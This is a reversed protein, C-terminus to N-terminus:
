LSKIYSRILEKAESDLDKLWGPCDSSSIVADINIKEAQTKLIKSTIIEGSGERECSVKALFEKDTANCSSDFRFSSGKKVKGFFILRYLPHLVWKKLGSLIREETYIKNGSVSTINEVTTDTFREIFDKTFIIDIEQEKFKQRIKELEVLVRKVQDERTRDDIIILNEAVGKVFVAGEVDKLLIQRIRNYDKTLVDESSDDEKRFGVQENGTFLNKDKYVSMIIISNSFDARVGGALSLSGNRLIQLILERLPQSAYHVGDFFIVSGFSGGAELEQKYIEQWAKSTLGRLERYFDLIRAGLRDVRSQCKKQFNESWEQLINLDKGRRAKFHPFDIQSFLPAQQFGLADPALPGILPSLMGPYVAHFASCDIYTFSSSRDWPKGLWTESFVRVLLPIASFTTGCLLFRESGFGGFNGMDFSTIAQAARRAFIETRRGGTQTALLAGYVSEGKPSFEPLDKFLDNEQKM